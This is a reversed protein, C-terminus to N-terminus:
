GSKLTYFSNCPLSTSKDLYPGPRNVQCENMRSATLVFGQGPVDRLSSGPKKVAVGDVRPVRAEAKSWGRTLDM